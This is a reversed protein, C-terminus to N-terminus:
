SNTIKNQEKIKSISTNMYKKFMRSLYNPDSIGCINCAEKLSASENKVLNIAIELRKKNAYKIITTGTLKHFIDSLYGESIGIYDAIDKITLKTKLNDLIYNEAREVYGISANSMNFKKHARENKYQFLSILELVLGSLELDNTQSYLLKKICSKIIESAKKVLIPDTIITPVSICNSVPDKIIKYKIKFGVTHHLQHTKSSIFHKELYYHFYISNSPIHVKKGSESELIADSEEFYSIELFDNRKQFSFAYNDTEYTHAFKVQPISEIIFNTPLEM